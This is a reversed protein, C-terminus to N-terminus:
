PPIQPPWALFDRCWDRNQLPPAKAGLSDGRSDHRGICLRWLGACVGDGSWRSPRRAASLFARSRGGRAYRARGAPGCKAGNGFQQERRKKDNRLRKQKINRRKQKDNRLAAYSDATAKTRKGDNQRMLAKLFYNKATLRKSLLEQLWWGGALGLNWLGEGWLGGCPPPLPPCIYISESRRRLRRAGNM